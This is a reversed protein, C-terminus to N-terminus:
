YLGSDDFIFRYLKGLVLEREFNRAYYHKARLGMDRRESEELNYIKEINKALTKHDETPGAFGCLIKFNILDSVEGDMALVIPKGSALYSTVKAPITAELLDSKVLSGVFIDAVTTYRPIDDIPKQGEFAFVNNLARIKVMNEMQKKSMGDGVIIWRIDTLGKKHLIEAAKVLTEPSQAPSINGAYVVNFSSSFRKSITDDQIESEYLKESTQPITSITVGGRTAKYLQDSMTDSLAILKDARRYYWHSLATILRQLRVNKLKLVSFLNEPWLDLVYMTIETRRLKGIFIGATAMLVPSLQYILIKDYKRFLLKPIAFMSFFPFSVYNLFIRRNSNDGRPIEPVRHIHINEYVERKKGFFGYGEFFRGSPYNPTGCLVDVYCDRENALYSAIDNIRFNEPYFHQCVILIRKKSM